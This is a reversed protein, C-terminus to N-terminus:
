DVKRWKCKKCVRLTKPGFSLVTLTENCEPCQDGSVSLNDIVLTDEPSEEAPAGSELVKVLRKQLKALQRKLKHNERKTEALEKSQSVEKPPRKDNM